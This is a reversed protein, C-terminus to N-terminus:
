IIEKQRSKELYRRVLFSLLTLKKSFELIKVLMRLCDRVPM